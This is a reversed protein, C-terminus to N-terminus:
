FILLDLPPLHLQVRLNAWFLDLTPLHFRAKSLQVEKAEFQELQEDIATCRVNDKHSRGLMATSVATACHVLRQAIALPCRRLVEMTRAATWPREPRKRATDATSGESKRGRPPYTNLFFFFFFFFLLLSNHFSAVSTSLVLSLYEDVQIKIARPLRPRERGVGRGGGGGWIFVVGWVGVGNQGGSVKKKRGWGMKQRRGWKTGLIDAWCSRVNLGVDCVCVCM